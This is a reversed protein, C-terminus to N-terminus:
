LGQIVRVQPIFFDIQRHIGQQFLLLHFVEQKVIHVGQNAPSQVPYNHLIHANQSKQPLVKGGKGEM